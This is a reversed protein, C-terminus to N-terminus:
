RSGLITLMIFAIVLTTIIILVSKVVGFKAKVGNRKAREQIYRIIAMPWAIMGVIILFSLRDIFYGAFSALGMLVFLKSSIPNSIEKNLVESM